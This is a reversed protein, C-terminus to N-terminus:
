AGARDDRLRHDVLEAVGGFLMGEQMGAAAVGHDVSRVATRQGLFSGGSWSPM